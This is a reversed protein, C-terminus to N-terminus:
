TSRKSPPLSLLKTKGINIKLGAKLAHNNLANSMKSVDSIKEALICIDDAYDIHKLNSVQSSMRWRLGCTALPDLAAELVDHIVLLFLVPSLICGQRVGSKIEFQESLKGKHLVRCKAGSYSAKIMTIIKEPVGRRRLAKWLSERRMSDFAKEFDVFLM